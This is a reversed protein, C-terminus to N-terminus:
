EKTFKECFEMNEKYFEEINRNLIKALESINCFVPRSDYVECKNDKNLMECSGDEKVKYPFILGRNIAEGVRKCCNGCQKCPFLKDVENM